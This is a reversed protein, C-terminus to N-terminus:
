AGQAQEHQKIWKGFKLLGSVNALHPRDKFPEIVRHSGYKAKLQDAILNAGGGVLFIHNITRASGLTDDLLNEAVQWIYRKASEVAPGTQVQQNSGPDVYYGRRVTEDMLYFPFSDEWNDFVETRLMDYLVRVGADVSGSGEPPFLFSDGTGIIKQVDTTMNGVDVFAVESTLLYARDQIPIGDADYCYHFFSGMPQEIFFFGDVEVAYDGRPTGFEHLGVLRERVKSPVSDSRLDRVPLGMVVDVVSVGPELALSLGARFFNVYDESYVRETGTMQRVNDAGLRREADDGFFTPFRDNKNTIVVANRGNTSLYQAIAPDAVKQVGILSRFWSGHPPTCPGAVKFGGFGPDCGIVYTQQKVKGSM